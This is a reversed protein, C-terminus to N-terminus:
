QHLNTVSYWTMTNVARLILTVEVCYCWRVDPTLAEWNHILHHRPLAVPIANSKRDIPRPNLDEEPCRLTVVKPLNNV